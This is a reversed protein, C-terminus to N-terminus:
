IESVKGTTALVYGELEWIKDKAAAECRERAYFEGTTKIYNAPDVCASEGYGVQFEKGGPLPLFAWCGTTTTAGVREYRYDLSKFLRDVHEPTVRNTNALKDTM